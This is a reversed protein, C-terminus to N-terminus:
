MYVILEDFNDLLMPNIWTLTVGFITYDINEVYSVGNIIVLLKTGVIPTTSLTFIIQNLTPIFSEVNTFGSSNLNVVISTNIFDIVKKLSIRLVLDVM